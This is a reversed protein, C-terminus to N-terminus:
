TSCLSTSLGAPKHPAEFLAPTCCAALVGMAGDVRAAAASPAPLLAVPWSCSLEAALVACCNLHAADHPLPQRRVEEQDVCTFPNGHSLVKGDRVGAIGQLPPPPVVTLVPMNCPCSCAGGVICFALCGRSRVEIQLLPLGQPRLQLGLLSHLMPQTKRRIRVYLGALLSSV